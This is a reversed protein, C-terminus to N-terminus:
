ENFDYEENKSGMYGVIDGTYGATSTIAANYNVCSDFVTNEAYGCIGGSYIEGNIPNYNICNSISGAESIGAIGGVKSGHGKITVYSKCSDIIGLIEVLLEM